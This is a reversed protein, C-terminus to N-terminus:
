KDELVSQVSSCHLFPKGAKVLLRLECLTARAGAVVVSGDSFGVCTNLEAPVNETWV